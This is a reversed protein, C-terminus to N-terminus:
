TRRLSSFDSRSCSRTSTAKPVSLLDCAREEPYQITGSGTRTSLLLVVSESYLSNIWVLLYRITSVSHLVKIRLCYVLNGREGELCRNPQRLIFVTAKVPEFVM